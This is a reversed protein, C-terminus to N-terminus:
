PLGASGSWALQALSTQGRDPFLLTQSGSLGNASFNLTNGSRTFSM